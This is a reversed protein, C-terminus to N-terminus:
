FENSLLGIVKIPTTFRSELYISILALGPVFYSNTNVSVGGQCLLSWVRESYLRDKIVLSIYPQQPTWGDITIIRRRTCQLSLIVADNIPYINLIITSFYKM